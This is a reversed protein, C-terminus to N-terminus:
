NNVGPGGSGGGEAPSSPGQEGAAAIVGSGENPYGKPVLNLLVECPAHDLVFDTTRGFVLNGIRRKRTTGVIIVESRLEAATECIARGAQRATVVHPTFKIKFQDAIVGAAKLVREARAREDVLRADLPLNLPVEIIYVGDIASNKETALQCALVMMEDSIWTGTIPVLIQDYDIDEQMSPPVYVKEVTKTLSYGKVKRYVVYMVLGAAMWGLGVARGVPHTVVVVFWVATTGLGGIVALLPISTNRFPINLPTRWPRPFDPMKFRLAVVCVHAVTFSIMAGFAYLDALASISGPAVLIAAILGFLAIAVYPTYRKPHVRGLVPPLQRHSAMSYALRSSGIIGANTGIILITAALVAIWPALIVKMWDLSRPLNQVIGQLPDAEYVNGLQTGWLQTVWTGAPMGAQATALQYVEGTAKLRYEPKSPDAPSIQSSKPDVRVYVDQKPDSKLVYPGTEAIKGPAPEVAVPQILKTQPDVPLVNYHVTMASLGVMSIAFYVGLVAALVYKVARPVDRGPDSSEEAMNSITEIGTYAVTGISIGYILQRWTPAVGLHIQTILIKPSVFVFVGVVALLVQTGLDLVALIINIRAAEKIGIINIVVLFVIVAIGGISNYPWVKFLPWFTALYNPVFFASIAITIIYDLMLAWGAGFSVFENFTHRAFSSSGGAEPFMTTAEAYSFATTVFLLGTLMFVVPTLGMASAAVVGLAYYISSGVNGYATSFLAPVGLVKHLSQGERKKRRAM